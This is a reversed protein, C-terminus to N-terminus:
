SWQIDEDDQALPDDAYNIGGSVAGRDPDWLWITEWGESEFDNDTAPHEKSFLNTLDRSIREILRTERFMDRCARRTARELPADGSSVALFAAPITTDAKYLDAVDYVFSLRDGTHIFGLSPILGLAVIAAHAIGYLCSNAVSLAQNVPDTAQWQQRNYNRREWPVGTRHSWEKYARRVRAGERGRLQAMSLKDVREGPFRMQYMLRAIRKRSTPNAWAAAQHEALRSSRNRGTGGAYFRVAHEGVWAISCGHDAITMIARQTIRTGPGLLLTALTAVPITVHGHRDTATVADDTTDIRCRELYLFSLTDALRPLDHASRPRSNPM